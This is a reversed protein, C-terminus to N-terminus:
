RRDCYTAGIISHQDMNKARCSLIVARGQQRASLLRPLRLVAFSSSSTSTPRLSLSPVVREGFGKSWIEDQKYHSRNKEVRTM